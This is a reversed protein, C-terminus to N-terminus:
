ANNPEGHWAVLARPSFDHVAIDRSKWGGTYVFIVLWGVLRWLFGMDRGVRYKGLGRIADAWERRVGVGISITEATGEEGEGTALAVALITRRGITSRGTMDTAAILDVRMHIGEAVRHAIMGSGEETDMMETTAEGTAGTIAEASTERAELIEQVAEQVVEAV